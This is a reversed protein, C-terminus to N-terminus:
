QADQWCRDGKRGPTTHGHATRKAGGAATDQGSLQTHKACVARLRHLAPDSRLQWIGSQHRLQRSGDCPHLAILEESGSAGSLFEALWNLYDRVFQQLCGNAKGSQDSIVAEAFTMSFQLSNVLLPVAEAPPVVHVDDAVFPTAQPGEGELNFRLGDVIVSYRSGSSNRIALAGLFEDCGLQLSEFAEDALSIARPQGQVWMDLVQGFLRVKKGPVEITKNSSVSLVNAFLIFDQVEEAAVLQMDALDLCAKYANVTPTAIFSVVGATDQPLMRVFDRQDYISFNPQITTRYKQAMAGKFIRQWILGRKQEIMVSLSALRVGIVTQQAFEQQLDALSLVSNVNFLSFV